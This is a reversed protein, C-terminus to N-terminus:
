WKQTLVITPRYFNEILRSAVIGVVGKHWNRSICCNYKKTSLNRRSKMIALAAETISDAERRETNDAIFCKQLNWQKTQEDEIFLQVAKKADDMRGAANIRPAVIFVLNNITM